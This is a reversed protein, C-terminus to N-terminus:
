QKEIVHSNANIRLIDIFSSSSSSRYRLVRRGETHHTQTDYELLLISTVFFGLFAFKVRICNSGPAKMAEQDIKWSVVLVVMKKIVNLM